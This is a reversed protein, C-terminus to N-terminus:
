QQDTLPVNFMGNEYIVTRQGNKLVATVTKAETNVLDWHLASDNFGLEKKRSRTLDEPNGAYTDAYSAGVAVHCNGHEGGYNEDFLTHAMFADIRSFRKDTLSFEGLRCAGADMQLQARVFDAGQEASVLEAQGDRFCLTVGRVLNGSRYSPQDAHFVGETKRYDPSLFLEFSPINHGSIGIWRRSEGPYVKLDTSASRVHYFDVDMSNLRSKIHEAQLFVNEWAAVPDEEDLYTARVIQAAYEELSLGSNEALAATPMLCLTWGFSRAGERQDLIDRLYKRALSFQSIKGPDVDKLHTISDPALLSILGHLNQYLERDGPATFTLQAESALFFYSKELASPPNVRLVPNIGRELLLSQVKEALSLAALDTRVLVVDGQSFPTIRAKQMGWFLIRAYRELQIDTLM